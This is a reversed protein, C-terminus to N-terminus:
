VLLVKSVVPCAFDRDGIVLTRVSYPVGSSRLPIAAKV